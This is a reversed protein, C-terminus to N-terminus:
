RGAGTIVAGTSVVGIMSGSKDFDYTHEDPIGYKAKTNRALKFWPTIVRADENPAEQGDYPCSCSLKIKDTCTTFRNVSCKDVPGKGRAARLDNAMYRM